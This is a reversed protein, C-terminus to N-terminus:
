LSKKWEEVTKKWEEYCPHNKSPNFQVWDKGSKWVPRTPKKDVKKKSM